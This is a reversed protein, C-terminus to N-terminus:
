GLLVVTGIVIWTLAGLVTSIIGLIMGAQTLGEGAPDIQGARIQKLDGAGMVWAAIGIPLCFLLVLSAIGLGLILGGRHPQGAGGFPGRQSPALPSAYPSSPSAIGQPPQVSFGAGLSPYVDQASQWLGSGVRKLVAGASVRGEGVWADLERRGVPGWVQGDPTRMQWQEEGPGGTSIASPSPIRFTARCQPCQGQRGAHEDALRLRATCQPCALEIPM